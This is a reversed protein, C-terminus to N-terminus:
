GILCWREGLSLLLGRFSVVTTAIKRSIHVHLFKTKEATQFYCIVDLLVKDVMNTVVTVIQWVTLNFAAPVRCEQKFSLVAYAHQGSTTVTDQRVAQSRTEDSGMPVTPCRELVNLNALM